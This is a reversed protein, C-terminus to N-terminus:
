TSDIPPYIIISLIKAWQYINTKHTMNNATAIPNKVKM